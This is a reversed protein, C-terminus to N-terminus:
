SINAIFMRKGAFFFCQKDIYSCFSWVMVLCICQLQWNLYHICKSAMERPIKCITNGLILQNVEWQATRNDGRWGNWVQHWSGCWVCSPLLAAVTYHSTILLLYACTTLAGCFSVILNLVTCHQFQICEKLIRWYYLKFYINQLCAYMGNAKVMAMSATTSNCKLVNCKDIRVLYGWKYCTKTAHQHWSTSLSICGHTCVIVCTFTNFM